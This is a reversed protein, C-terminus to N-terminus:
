FPWTARHFDLGGVLFKADLDGDTMELFRPCIEKYGSTRRHKTMPFPISCPGEPAPPSKAKKKRRSPRENTLM